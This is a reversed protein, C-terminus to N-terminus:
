WADPRAARGHLLGDLGDPPLDEAHVPDPPVGPEEIDPPMRQGEGAHLRLEQLPELHVDVDHREHRQGRDPLESLVDFAEGLPSGGRCIRPRRGGLV